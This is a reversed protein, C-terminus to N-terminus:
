PAEEGDVSLAQEITMPYIRVATPNRPDTNIYAVTEIHEEFATAKERPAGVILQFGLARLAALM